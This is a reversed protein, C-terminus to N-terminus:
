LSLFPRIIKSKQIFWESIWKKRKAISEKLQEMEHQKSILESVLKDVKEHNNGGAIMVPINALVEKIVEEDKCEKMKAVVDNTLKFGFFEQIDKLRKEYIYFDSQGM